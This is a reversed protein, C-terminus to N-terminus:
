EDEPPGDQSYDIEDDGSRGDSTVLRSQGIQGVQGKQPFPTTEESVEINDLVEVAESVEEELELPVSVSAGTEMGVFVVFVFLTRRIKTLM